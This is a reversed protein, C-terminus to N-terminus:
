DVAPHLDGREGELSKPGADGIAMRRRGEKDQQDGSGGHDGLQGKESM